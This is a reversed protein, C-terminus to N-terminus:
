YKQMRRALEQFLLWSGASLAGVVWLVPVAHRLEVASTPVWLEYACALQHASVCTIWTAHARLGGVDLAATVKREHLRQASLWDRPQPTPPNSL